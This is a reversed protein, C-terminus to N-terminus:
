LEWKLGILLQNGIKDAFGYEYHNGLINKFTAYSTTKNTLRYAVKANLIMNTNIDMQNNVNSAGKDTELLKYYDFNIFTQKTYIYADTEFNWKDNHKYNVNFGGFFSPTKNNSWQTPNLKTDVVVTITNEPTINGIQINTIESEISSRGAIKTKQYTGYFKANIKNTPKYNLTFGTGFQHASLDYNEFLVDANATISVYGDIEGLNNIHQVAENHHYVNPNVFNKVKSFFVEFDFNLTSNIETRWGFEYNTVTPYKLDKQGKVDISIPVVINTNSIEDLYNYNIMMGTNLYSDFFFPSKNANSIALRMMNNKNLRYTSAVEYNALYYKSLDFKDVRFAGIFRLKSTPKWESLMYASYSSSIRPEDKFNSNFINLDLPDKYTVPSNYVMYKYAIGPRFSLTGYQKFYELNADIDTFKYSSFKYNSLHQGSNINFQGSLNKHKIKTDFYYSESNIQSLATVLNLFGAKQSQAKQAGLSIEIESLESFCHNFFINGGIRKLSIEEDININLEKRYDEFTWYEGTEEDKLPNVVMTLNNYTTYSDTKFNFYDTNYRDRTSFNGSFSLKTKDNWNYGINVSTNKTNNTGVTGNVSANIGKNNAYSTIINIVGTVANAGYLASAPGRVIEIQEVDNLDIPFAEWLTGGTFYSYVIRNDIMVLTTTNYPLTLYVNKTIDDYGRIHIDYNGPTIERVIMGPSLRLAEPISTVGSRIIEEKTIITTSLPTEFLDEPKKSATVAVDIDLLEDLTMEKYVANEQASVAIGLVSLFLFLLLYKKIFEM